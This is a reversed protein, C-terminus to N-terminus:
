VSKHRAYLYETSTRFGIEEDARADYLLIPFTSLGSSLFFSSGAGGPGRASRSINIERLESCYGGRPLFLSLSLSLSLVRARNDHSCVHRFYRALAFCSGEGSKRGCYGEGREWRPATLAGGTVIADGICRSMECGGDSRTEAAAILASCVLRKRTAACDQPVSGYVGGYLGDDRDSLGKGADGSGRV